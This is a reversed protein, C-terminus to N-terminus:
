EQCLWWELCSLYLKLPLSIVHYKLCSQSIWGNEKWGRGQRDPSFDIVLLPWSSLLRDILIETSRARWWCSTFLHTISRLFKEIKDIRKHMWPRDKIKLHKGNFIDSSTFEISHLLCSFIYIVCDFLKSKITNNKGM